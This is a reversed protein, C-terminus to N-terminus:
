QKRQSPFKRAQAAASKSQRVADSEKGHLLAAPPPPATLPVGSSVFAGAALLAYCFLGRDEDYVASYGNVSEYRAYFEDGFVLLEVDPGNRQGLALKEGFIGTM